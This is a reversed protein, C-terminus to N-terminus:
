QAANYVLTITRDKYHVIPKILWRIKNWAIDTSVHSKENSGAYEGDQLEKIVKILHSVCAGADVHHTKVCFSNSGLDFKVMM